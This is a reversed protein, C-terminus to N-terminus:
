QRVVFISLAETEFTVIQDAAISAMSTLNGTFDLHFVNAQGTWDVAISIFIPGEFETINNLGASITVMRVIDGEGTANRQRPSLLGAPVPSISISIDPHVGQEVISLIAAPSLEVIGGPLLVEISLGANAFRELAVRPLRAERLHSFHALNSFDVSIIDGYEAGSLIDRINLTSLDLSALTGERSIAANINAINTRAESTAPPVSEPRFLGPRSLRSIYGPRRRPFTRLSPPTIRVPVRTFNFYDRYYPGPCPIIAGNEEDGNEYGNEAEGNEYGNEYGNEAAAGYVPVLSVTLLAALCMAIRRKM